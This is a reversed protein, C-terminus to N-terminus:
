LSSNSIADNSEMPMTDMSNMDKATTVNVAQKTWTMHGSISTERGSQHIKVRGVHQVADDGDVFDSNTLSNYRLLTPGQRPTGRAVEPPIALRVHTGGAV